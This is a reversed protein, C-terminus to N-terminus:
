SLATSALLMLAFSAVPLAIGYVLKEKVTFHEDTAFIINIFTKM